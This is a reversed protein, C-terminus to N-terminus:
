PAEWRREPSKEKEPHKLYVNGEPNIGRLTSFLLPAPSGEWAALAVVGLVDM